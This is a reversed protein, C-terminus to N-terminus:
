RSSLDVMVDIHSHERLSMDGIHKFFVVRKFVRYMCVCVCMCLCFVQLGSDAAESPRAEAEVVIAGAGSRSHDAHAVAASISEITVGPGAAKQVAVNLYDGLHKANQYMHTNTHTHTHTHTYTYTDTSTTEWTSPM